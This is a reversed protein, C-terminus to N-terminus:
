VNYLLLEGPSVGNAQHRAMHHHHPLHHASVPSPTGHPVMTMPPGQTLPSMPRMRQSPAYGSSVQNAPLQHSQYGSPVAHGMAGALCCLYNNAFKGLIIILSTFLAVGGPLRMGRM